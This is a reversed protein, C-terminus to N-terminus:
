PGLLPQPAPTQYPGPSPGDYRYPPRYQPNTVAARSGVAGSAVMGEEVRKLLYPFFPNSAIRSLFDQDVVLAGREGRASLTGLSLGYQEKTAPDPKLGYLPDDLPFPVAVHSLSFIQPPYPLALPRSREITAGAEITREVTESSDPSANAILAFYKLGTILRARM